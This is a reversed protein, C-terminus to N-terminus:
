YGTPTYCRNNPVGISGLQNKAFAEGEIGAQTVATEDGRVQWAPSQMFQQLCMPILASEIFQDPVCLMTANDYDDLTIRKPWFGIKVNIAMASNPAPAFRMVMIPTKSQSNGFVQPWWTQPIGVAQAFLWGWTGGQTSNILNPGFLPAQSQNAFIPNGIIRDLPYTTSYIANGYITGGVTGTAGIYPNLLENSGIIQNWGGDGELVVSQGFQEATFTIGTVIKSYQTVGVGAIALPGPLVFGQTMEKFYTPLANYLRMLAANAATALDTQETMSLRTFDGGRARRGIRHFLQPVTIGTGAGSSAAAAVEGVAYWNIYGGDSASTPIASLHVIVGASTLTEADFSVEFSEGSGSPLALSPAFFTPAANFAPTFSVVYDQQGAVIYILGVQPATSM